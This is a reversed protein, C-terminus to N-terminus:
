FSFSFLGNEERRGKEEGSNECVAIPHSYFAIRKKRRKKRKGAVSIYYKLVRTTKKKREKRGEV